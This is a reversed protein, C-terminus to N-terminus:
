RNETGIMRLIDGAKGSDLLALVFYQASPTLILKEFTRRIPDIRAPTAANLVAVALATAKNEYIARIRRNEEEIHAAERQNYELYAQMLALFEEDSLKKDISSLMIAARTGSMRCAKRLVSRLGSTRQLTVGQAFLLSRSRPRFRKLSKFASRSQAPGNARAVDQLLAFERLARPATEKLLRSPVNIDDRLALM